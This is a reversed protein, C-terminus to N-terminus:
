QPLQFLLQSIDNALDCLAHIDTPCTEETDFDAGVFGVINARRDVVKCRAIAKVGSSKLVWRFHCNQPLASILTFSPGDERVLATEEPVWSTLVERLHNREETVGERTAENSRTYKLIESGDVYHEGNHFKAFYVRQCNWRDRLRILALNIKSDRTQDPLSLRAKKATLKIIFDYTRTGIM